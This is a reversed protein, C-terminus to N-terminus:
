FDPMDLLQDISYTSDETESLLAEVDIQLSWTSTQSQQQQSTSCATEVAPVAETMLTQAPLSAALPLHTPGLV